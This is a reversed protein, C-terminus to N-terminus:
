GVLPFTVWIHAAHEGQRMAWPTGQDFDFTPDSAKKASRPVMWPVTEALINPFGHQMDAPEEFVVM